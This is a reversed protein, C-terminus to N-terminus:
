RLIYHLHKLTLYRKKEDPSYVFADILGEVEEDLTTVIIPLPSPLWQELIWLVLSKPLEIVWDMPDINFKTVLRVLKWDYVISYGQSSNYNKNSMIQNEIKLDIYSLVLYM